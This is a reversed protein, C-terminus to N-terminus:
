FNKKRSIDFIKSNNSIAIKNFERAIESDGGIIVIDNRMKIVM